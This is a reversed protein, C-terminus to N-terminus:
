HRILRYLAPHSRYGAMAGAIARFRDSSMAQQFHAPTEWEAVNVFPYAADPTLSHHLSTTRYGPQDTLYDRAEEWADIFREAEDDPVEFPNILVVPSGM